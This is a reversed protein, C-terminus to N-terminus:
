ARVTAWITAPAKMPEETPGLSRRRRGAMRFGKRMRMAPYRARSMIAPKVKRATEGRSGMVLKMDPTAPPIVSMGTMAASMPASTGLTATSWNTRIAAPSPTKGMIIAFAMFIVGLAAPFAAAGPLAGAAGLAFFGASGALLGWTIRIVMATAQAKPKKPLHVPMGAPAM